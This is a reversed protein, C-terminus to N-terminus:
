LLFPLYRDRLFLCCCFLLDSGVYSLCALSRHCQENERLNQCSYSLSNVKVEQAMNFDVERVSYSFLARRVVRLEVYPTSHMETTMGVSFFKYSMLLDCFFVAFEQASADM